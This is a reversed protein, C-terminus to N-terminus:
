REVGVFTVVWAESRMRLSVKGGCPSALEHYFQIVKVLVESIVNGGSLFSVLLRRIVLMNQLRVELNAVLDEDFRFV